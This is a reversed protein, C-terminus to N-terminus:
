SNRVIPSENYEANRYQSDSSGRSEDIMLQGLSKKSEYNSIMKKDFSEQNLPKENSHMEYSINLSQDIGSQNHFSKETPLRKSKM